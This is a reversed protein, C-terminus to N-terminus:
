EGLIQSSKYLFIMYLIEGILSLVVIVIVGLISAIWGLIPILALIAILVLGVNCAANIKWTTEGMQAVNIAGIRNLVESVSTCVLYIVMFSVIYGATEVIMHMISSKLGAKLINLIINVLTLIFATRCGEIDNGAQFLGVMSLIMFVIVAIAALINVFPIFALITCIVVGLSAIFMKRLGAGANQLNGM